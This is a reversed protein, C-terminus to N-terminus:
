FLEGDHGAFEHSEASAPSATKSALDLGEDLEGEVDILLEGLRPGREPWASM